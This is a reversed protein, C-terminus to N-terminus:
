MLKILVLVLFLDYINLDDIDKEQNCNNCHFSTIKGLKIIECLYGFLEDKFKIWYKYHRKVVSENTQENNEVIPNHDQLNELKM